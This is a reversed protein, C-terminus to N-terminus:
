SCREFIFNSFDKLRYRNSIRALWVIFSKESIFKLIIFILPSYCWKSSPTNCNTGNYHHLNFFTCTRGNKKKQLNDYQHWYNAGNTIVGESEFVSNSFLLNSNILNSSLLDFRIIQLITLCPFFVQCNTEARSQIGQTFLFNIVSLLICSYLAKVQLYSTQHYM